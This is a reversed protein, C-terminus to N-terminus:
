RASGAAPRQQQMQLLRTQLHAFLLLFAVIMLIGILRIIWIRSM